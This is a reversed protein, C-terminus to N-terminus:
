DNNKQYAEPIPIANISPQNVQEEFKGWFTHYLKDFFSEFLFKKQSDQRIHLENVFEDPVQDFTTWLTLAEKKPMGGAIAHKRVANVAQIERLKEGNLKYFHMSIMTVLWAFMPIFAFTILASLRVGTFDFNTMDLGTSPLAGNLAPIIGVTFVTIFLAAFSSVLKDILSFITGMIGPMYNGTRYTEYDTCDAVMPIVMESNCNYAGYGCGFLLIWIITYLNTSFYTSGDANWHILSLQRAANNPDWLLIMVVLGIYFVFALLTYQSVARKQGKRGATRAGIYFFYGMFIFSIAYLPIFLGNYSGMMIFYILIAVTGSTSITSALKNAGGSLVLWRIQNNHKLLNVYDKFKAKEANEDIGWYKPNDKKWIAIVALITYLLSILIAIPILIDYFKPNYQAGFQNVTDIPDVIMPLLGNGLLNILVISGVMGVMNWIIFQSRQHPDNTIVTQGAKTVATQATYGLVYIIYAVVFLAWRLWTAEIPRFVFFILVVSSAMILNGAIMYPRFKGYKSNTKDILAGVIPDTIGDFIRMGTVISSLVITLVAMATASLVGGVFGGSLYYGGYYTIFTMVTLYVNTAANNFPFLIIQYTKALNVSAKNKITSTM